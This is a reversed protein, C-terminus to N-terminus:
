RRIRQHVHAMKPYGVKQYNEGAADKVADSGGRQDVWYNDTDRMYGTEEIEQLRKYIRQGLATFHDRFDPLNIYKPFLDASINVLRTHM